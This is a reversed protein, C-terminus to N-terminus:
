GDMWMQGHCEDLHAWDEWPETAPTYAHVVHYGPPALNSDL